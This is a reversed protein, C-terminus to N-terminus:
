LIVFALTQILWLVVGLIHLHSHGILLLTETERKLLEFLDLYLGSGLRSLSSAVDRCKLLLFM